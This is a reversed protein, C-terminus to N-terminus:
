CGLKEGRRRKERKVGWAVAAGVLGLVAVGLVVVAAISLPDQLQVHPNWPAYAPAEYGAVRPPQQLQEYDSLPGGGQAADIAASFEAAADSPIPSVPADQRRAVTHSLPKLQKIIKNNPNLTYGDGVLIKTVEVDVLQFSEADDGTTISNEDIDNDDNDADADADVVDVDVDIDESDDSYPPIEQAEFVADEDNSDEDRPAIKGVKEGFKEAAEEGIFMDSVSRAIEKGEGDGRKLFGAKVNGVPRDAPKDQM